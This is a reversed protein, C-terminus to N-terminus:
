DHALRDVHAVLAALDRAQARLVDVSPDAPVCVLAEARRTFGPPQLPLLDLAAALRKEGPFYVRNLAFVVQVLAHLVLQVIGSTYLVDRREIASEYHPNGPWFRAEAMFRRLIADRLPDPYAAVAEKWRALTGSPDEVVRMAHVDALVVHRFFGMTTWYVHERTIEGRLAAAIAREVEDASRMWCEIRVGRHVFDTGSQVFPEDAGWSVPASADGLAERVRRAREGGPLVARAFLYLDVDSHEDARAKAHSGGLAIGCEGVCFERLLPLLEPLLLDPGPLPDRASPMTLRRATADAM